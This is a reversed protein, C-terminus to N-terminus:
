RGRKRLNESFSAIMPLCCMPFWLAHVGVMIGKSRWVAGYSKLMCSLGVACLLFHYPSIPDGQRIGRTPKFFNWFNGNVSVSFSISQVCAMIHNIWGEAFDLNQMIVKLYGWEIRDYAKAM